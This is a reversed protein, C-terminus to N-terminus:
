WVSLSQTHTCSPASGQTRACVRANTVHFACLPCSKVNEDGHLCFSNKGRTTQKNRYCIVHLTGPMSPYVQLFCTETTILSVHRSIVSASISFLCYSGCVKSTICYAVWMWQIGFQIESFISRYYCNSGGREGTGGPQKPQDPKRVGRRQETVKGGWQRSIIGESMQKIVGLVEPLGAIQQFTWRTDAACRVTLKSADTHCISALCSIRRRIRVPTACFM